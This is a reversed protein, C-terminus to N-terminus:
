NSIKCMKRGKVWGEKFYFEFDEKPIKKSQNDKMIWMKGFQSNKAGQQHKIKKYTDRQKKKTEEKHKRGDWFYKLKGNKLREDNVSVTFNNGNEDCVLVKGVNFAKLEGNLFREDSTPVFVIKDNLRVKVQGKKQGKTAGVLEGNKIRIDNTPVQMVNGNKDKVTATGTTTFNGGGLIINYCNPNKILDENVIEREKLAALDRTEFFEIIEKKFNEVGYEDYAKKINSGSGMYGDNLNKTTHIGYYYMGNILNTIKYLYNYKNKKAM